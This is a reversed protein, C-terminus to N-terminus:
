LQRLKLVIIDESLGSLAMSLHSLVSLLEDSRTSQNHVNAIVKFVGVSAQDFGVLKLTSNRERCSGTEVVTCSM